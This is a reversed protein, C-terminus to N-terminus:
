VRERCSARGIEVNFAELEGSENVVYALTQGLTPSYETVPSSLVPGFTHTMWRVGLQSANATSIAPDMSVGTLSSNGHFTPWNAYAPAAPATSAQVAPGVSLVLGGGTAIAALGALLRRRFCRRARANRASAPTSVTAM